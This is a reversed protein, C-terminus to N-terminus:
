PHTMGPMSGTMTMEGTMTQGDPMTHVNSDGEGGTFAFSAGLAVVFLAVASAIIVATQKSV